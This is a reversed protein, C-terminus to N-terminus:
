RIKDLNFLKVTSLNDFVAVNKDDLFKNSIYCTIFGLGITILINHNKMYGGDIMIFGIMFEKVIIKIM